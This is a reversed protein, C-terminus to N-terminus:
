VDICLKKLVRNVERDVWEGNKMGMVDVREVRIGHHETFYEDRLKMMYQKRPESHHIGDIEINAVIAGTSSDMIVVDCELGDLFWQHLVQYRSNDQLANRFSKVFLKESYSVKTSSFKPAGILGLMELRKLGTKMDDLEESLKVSIGKKRQFYDFLCVNSTLMQTDNFSVEEM